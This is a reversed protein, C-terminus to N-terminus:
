LWRESSALLHLFVKWVQKVQSPGLLQSIYRLRQVCLCLIEKLNSSRAESMMYGLSTLCVSQTIHAPDGHLSIHVTLKM